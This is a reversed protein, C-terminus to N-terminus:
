FDPETKIINTMMNNSENDYLIYAILTCTILSVIFVKFVRASSSQKMDDQIGRRTFVLVLIALVASHILASIIFPPM